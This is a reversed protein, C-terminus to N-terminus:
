ISLNIMIDEGLARRVGGRERRRWESRARAADRRGDKSATPVGLPPRHPLLLVPSLPHPLHVPLSREKPGSVADPQPRGRAPGQMRPACPSVPDARTLTNTGTKPPSGNAARLLTPSRVRRIQVDGAQRSTRESGEAHAGEKEEAGAKAEAESRRIRRRRRRRRKRQQSRRAVCLRHTRSSISADSSDHTSERVRVSDSQPSSPDARRSRPLSDRM